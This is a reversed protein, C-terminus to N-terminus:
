LARRYGKGLMVDEDAVLTLFIRKWIVAFGPTIAFLRERVITNGAVSHIALVSANREDVV